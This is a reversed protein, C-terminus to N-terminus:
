RRRRRAAEAAPKERRVERAPKDDRLGLYRPHRLKGDRTWETFGFQAVLTPRVWHTGRGAPSGRAFPSRARALRRLRAGLRRLTTDDYGTGVKGAYVLGGDDYYGVLLAGFDSRAGEPDTWGGIVLEQEAVCKFKLWDPSRRHAYASAARKAIVGELGRACAERYLKEGEADRHESYRIPGRFSLASRLARKRERLELRTTDYGDLWLLDFLYYFVPIGTARARVPSTRPSRAICSRRTRRTSAAKSRRCGTASKGCRRSTAIARRCRRGNSAPPAPMKEPPGM